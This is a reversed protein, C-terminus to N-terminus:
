EPFVPLGSPVPGPFSQRYDSRMPNPREPSNVLGDRLFPTAPDAVIRLAYMNMQRLIEFHPYNRGDVGFSDLENTFGDEPSRNKLISLLRQFSDILGEAFMKRSAWDPNATEGLERMAQWPHAMYYIDNLIAWRVNVSPTFDSAAERYLGRVTHAERMFNPEDPSSGVSFLQDWAKFYALRNASGEVSNRQLTVYAHTALDGFRRQIQAIHYTSGTSKRIASAGTPRDLDLSEPPQRSPM